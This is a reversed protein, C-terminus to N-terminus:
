SVWTDAFEAFMDEPFDENPFKAATQDVGARAFNSDDTKSKIKPVFPASLKKAELDAFDLGQFWPHMKVDNAGHKLCGLRRYQDVTLLRQIFDKALMSLAAPYPVKCKIIKRYGEMPDKNGVNFPCAGCLCEFCLVGTCWWDVGFGHGKNLIIEPSLYDPTGCLTFTRDTILKAFGFDVLRLYGHDDLLLNEPKLDRYVVSQSHLYAFVAVVQAAYFRSASDKLPARKGLLTFLEGGLALELLMYLEGNDQYTGVLGLIFPHRVMALIQKEQVVHKVQKEKVILGKRMCKLAYTKGTPKHVVLKVRGYTGTGLIRRLELDRWKPLDSAPGGSTAKSSKVAKALRAADEARQSKSGKPVLVRRFRARELCWIRGRKTCRITSPRLSNYLLALLGFSDGPGYTGIVKGKQDELIEEFTGAAVVFCNNGPDGQTVIIEGKEVEIDIFGEILFNIQAETCQSFIENYQLGWRIEEMQSETKEVAEGLKGM